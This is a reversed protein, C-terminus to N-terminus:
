IMDNCKLDDKDKISFLYVTLKVKQGKKSQIRCLCLLTRHLLGNYVKLHKFILSRIPITSDTDQQSSVFLPIKWATPHRWFLDSLCLYTEGDYRKEVSPSFHKKFNACYICARVLWEHNRDEALYRFIENAWVGIKLRYNLWNAKTIRFWVTKCLFLPFSVDDFPLELIVSVLCLYNGTHKRQYHLALHDIIEIVNDGEFSIMMSSVTVRGTTILCHHLEASLLLLMTCVRYVLISQQLSKWSGQRVVCKRTKKDELIIITPSNSHTYWWGASM